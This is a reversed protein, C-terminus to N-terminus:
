RTAYGLFFRAAATHMAAITMLPSRRLPPVTPLCFLLWASLYVRRWAVRHEISWDVSTSGKSAHRM